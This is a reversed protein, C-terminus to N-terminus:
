TPYLSTRFVFRLSASGSAVRGGDSRGARNEERGEGLGYRSWDMWGQVENNTNRGTTLLFVSDHCSDVLENKMGRTSCLQSLWILSGSDFIILVGGGQVTRLRLWLAAIVGEGEWLVAELGNSASPFRARPSM